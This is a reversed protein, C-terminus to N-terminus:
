QTRRLYHKPSLRTCSRHLSRRATCRGLSFLSIFTNYDLATTGVSQPLCLINVRAPLAVGTALADEHTRLENQFSTWTNRFFPRSWPTPRLRAEASHRPAYVLRVATRPVILAAWGNCTPCFFPAAPARQPQRRRMLVTAAPSLQANSACRTSLSRPVRPLAGTPFHMSTRATIMGPSSAKLETKGAPTRV